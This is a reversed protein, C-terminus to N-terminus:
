RTRAPYEDLSQGPPAVSRRVATSPRKEGSAAHAFSLVARTGAETTLDHQINATQRRAEHAQRWIADIPDIRAEGGM